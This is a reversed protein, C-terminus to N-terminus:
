WCTCQIHWVLLGGQGLCHTGGPWEESLGQSDLLLPSLMLLHQGALRPPVGEVVVVAVVVGLAPFGGAKGGALMHGSPSVLLCGQLNPPSGPPQQTNTPDPYLHVHQISHPLSTTNSNNNSNPSWWV